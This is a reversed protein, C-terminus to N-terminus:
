YEVELVQFSEAEGMKRAEIRCIGNRGKELVFEKNESYDQLVNESIEGNEATEILTLKYELGDARNSAVVFKREADGEEYLLGYIAPESNALKEEYSEWFCDEANVNGEVVDYLFGTFLEAGQNNLHGVNMFYQNKQIPLYEEKCLNFDYYSLNYETAIERVQEVYNDYRQMEMAHLEYFPASFITLEIENEKCYEIIKRLYKEADKTMPKQDLPSLERLLYRSDMEVDTYYYGKDQYETINGQEDINTYRYEQKRKDELQERIHATDFVQYRYRTFPLLSDVYSDPESMSFIFSLKNISMKMYDTNYWSYFLDKHKFDGMAGTSRRCYVDLYVYSINHEEDAEKLLYYSSDM